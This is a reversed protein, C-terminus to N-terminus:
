ARVPRAAAPITAATASDKRPARRHADGLVVRVTRRLLGASAASPLASAAAAEALDPHAVSGALAGDDLVDLDLPGLLVVGVVAPGHDLRRRPLCRDGDVQEEAADGAARSQQGEPRLARVARRQAAVRAERREAGDTDARQREDLVEAAGLPEQVHHAGDLDGAGHAE